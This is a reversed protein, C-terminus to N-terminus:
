KPESPVHLTLDFHLCFTSKWSVKVKLIISGSTHELEDSLCFIPTPNRNTSIQMATLLEHCRSYYKIAIRIMSFRLASLGSKSGLDHWFITIKPCKSPFNLSFDCHNHPFNIM